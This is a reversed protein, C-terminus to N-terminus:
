DLANHCINLQGGRYWRYFPKDSDDLITTPFVDWDIARAADAWFGAPDSLSREHMAQYRGTM